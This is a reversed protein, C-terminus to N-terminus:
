GRGELPSPSIQGAYQPKLHGAQALWRIADSFTQEGPRFELGSKRLFRGSDAPPWQTVYAMAEASMHTEFPVLKQALDTVAGMFRLLAGPLKPASVPKGLIGELLQRLSDWPYFHGGIIYRGNEFNAAPPNELLWRHAAALDRVDVAQLGTSTRPLMQSVFAVIAYNSECLKPDDPGMVGAPYTMQIPTGRRQLDRIYADCDHKSRSYPSRCTALPTSEDIRPLGPHFLVSLSSVYLINRIGAEMASDIVARMGEVNNDYTEQARRPDLAVAAAAHFVADCGNMAQRVAARDRIDAVVIDRVHYGHTTFYSKLLGSNRVLFRVEHGADLLMRATHAGVFGTAGTVLVKMFAGM